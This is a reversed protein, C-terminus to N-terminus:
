KESECSYLSFSNLWSFIPLLTKNPKTINLNSTTEVKNLVYDVLGILDPFANGTNKEWTDDAM